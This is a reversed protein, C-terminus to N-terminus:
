ECGIPADALAVDDFWITGNQLEWGIRFAQLDPIFDALPNTNGDGNPGATYNTTSLATEEEDLWVRLGDPSNTMQFELCYWTNAVLSRNRDRIDQEGNLWHNSQLRGVNHGLRMEHGDNATTGVEVWIYHLNASPTAALRLFVRGFVENAARVAQPLAFQLMTHFANNSDIRMSSSSGNAGLSTDITFDGAGGGVESETWQPDRGGEFDDILYFGGPLVAPPPEAPPPEVPPQDGSGAAGAPDPPVSPAAGGSGAAGVMATGAAGNPVSESGGGINSAGGSGPNSVALGGPSAENGSGALANGAPPNAANGGAAGGGGAPTGPAGTAPTPGAFAPAGEEELGSEPASCALAILAAFASRRVSVGRVAPSVFPLASPDHSPIM